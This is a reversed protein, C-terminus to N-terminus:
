KQIGRALQQVFTAIIDKETFGLYNKMVEGRVKVLQAIGMLMGWFCFTFQVPDLAPHLLGQKKADTAISSVFDILNNISAQIETTEELNNNVEYIAILEFYFPYKKYFSFSTHAIAILKEIPDPIGKTAKKFNTLVLERSKISLAGIIEEKNKFYLYLTGKALETEKAVMEISLSNLGNEKLIKEAADLIAHYRQLKEKNKRDIVAM